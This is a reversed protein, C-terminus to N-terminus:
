FEFLHEARTFNVNAIRVERLIFYFYFDIFLYFFLYIFFLIFYIFLYYYYYYDVKCIEARMLNVNM